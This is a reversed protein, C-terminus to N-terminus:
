KDREKRMRDACALAEQIQPADVTNKGLAIRRQCWDEITGPAADDRGLLVFTLEDDKAKNWCSNPDTAEIDKRM